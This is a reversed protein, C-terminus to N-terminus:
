NWDIRPATGQIHSGGQILVETGATLKLQTVAHLEASGDEKLIMYCEPANHMKVEKLAYGELKGEEEMRVRATQQSGGAYVAGEWFGESSMTLDAKKLGDSDYVAGHILGGASIFLDARRTRNADRAIVYTSVDTAKNHRLEYLKDYDKKTLVVEGTDNGMTIRSGNPHQISVKGRKDITIQHDSPHRFLALDDFEGEQESQAAQGEENMEHRAFLMESVQPPLFGVVWMKATGLYSGEAQLVVAYLDRGTKSENAESHVVSEGSDPYTKRAPQKPDYSPAVMGVFGFNTGVWSTLVPIQTVPNGDLFMVDVSHDERHVSIVKGLKILPSHPRELAQTANEHGIRLNNQM